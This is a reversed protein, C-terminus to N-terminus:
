KKKIHKDLAGFDKTNRQLTINCLIIFDKSGYRLLPDISRKIYKDDIFPLCNALGNSRPSKLAIYINAEDAGPKNNESFIVELGGYAAVLDRGKQNLISMFWEIANSKIKMLDANQLRGFSYKPDYDWHSFNKSGFRSKFVETPAPVLKDGDIINWIIESSQASNVTSMFGHNKRKMERRFKDDLFYEVPYEQNEDNHDPNHTKIRHFIDELKSRLSSEPICEPIVYWMLDVIEKKFMHKFPVLMLKPGMYDDDLISERLAKM